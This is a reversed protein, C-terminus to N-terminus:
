ARPTLWRISVGRLIRAASQASRRYYRARPDTAPMIEGDVVKRGDGTTLGDFAIFVASRCGMLRVIAAACEVSSCGWPLRLEREVEMVYRPRYDPFTDKSEVSSVILTEPPIPLTGEWSHGARADKQMTYIPNALGLTRVTTLSQNLTIVPGAEILGARLNLLSPGKGIIWATEGQHAGVLERIM